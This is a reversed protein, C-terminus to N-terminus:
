PGRPRLLRVHSLHSLVNTYLESFCSVLHTQTKLGATLSLCTRPASSAGTQASPPDCPCQGPADQVPRARAATRLARRQAEPWVPEPAAPEARGATPVQRVGEEPALAQRVQVQPPVVQSIPSRLKQTCGEAM